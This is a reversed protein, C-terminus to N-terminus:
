HNSTSLTGTTTTIIASRCTALILKEGLNFRGRKEPDAKKASEAFLTYAHALNQFGEPADDEVTLQALPRGPLLKLKIMVTTIKEDLANQLLEAILRCKGHQEILKGLGDKDNEVLITCTV